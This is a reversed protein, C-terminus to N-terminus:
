SRSARLTEYRLRASEGVDVHSRPRDGRRDLPDLQHGIRANVRVCLSRAGEPERSGSEAAPEIRRM